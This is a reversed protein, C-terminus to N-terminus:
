PYFYQPNRSAFSDVAEACMELELGSSDRFFRIAELRPIPGSKPDWIEECFKRILDDHQPNFPRDALAKKWKGFAADFGFSRARLAGATQLLPPAFLLLGFLTLTEESHFVGAFAIGAAVPLFFFLSFRYHDRRERLFEKRLGDNLQSKAHEAKAVRLAEPSIGIEEASRALATDTLLLPGAPEEAPMQRAALRLIEEAEEERYM